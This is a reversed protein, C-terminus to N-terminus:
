CRSLTYMHTGLPASQIPAEKSPHAQLSSLTKRLAQFQPDDEAVRVDRAYLVVDRLAPCGEVFKEVHKVVISWTEGDWKEANVGVGVRQLTDHACACLVGDAGGVLVNLEELAPFAGVIKCAELPAVGPGLELVRVQKAFAEALPELAEARAPGRLVLTELAPLAWYSIQRAVLPCTAAGEALVLTRLARLSLRHQRLATYPMPGALVLEHLVPAARVVDDLANIGGTRAANGTWDFAWELRRLAPLAPADPSFDFVGSRAHLPRIPPRVLVELHPLLALLALAPPAHTTPTATSAYPLVARRVHYRPASYGDPDPADLAAHLAPIGRGIRIDEYLMSRALIRWQKCVLSISRKDGLAADSITASNHCSQFPEYHSSLSTPTSTAFRFVHLWLEAPLPSRLDKYLDSMIWPMYDGTM